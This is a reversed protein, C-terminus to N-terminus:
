KEGDLEKLIQVVEGRQCAWVIDPISARPFGSEILNYIHDKRNAVPIQMFVLGANYRAVRSCDGCLIFDPAPSHDIAVEPIGCCSCRGFEDM